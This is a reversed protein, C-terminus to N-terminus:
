KEMEEKFQKYYEIVSDLDQFRMLVYNNHDAKERLMLGFQGEIGELDLPKM